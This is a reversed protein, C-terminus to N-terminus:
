LFDAFLRDKTKSFMVKSPFLKEGMHAFGVLATAWESLELPLRYCKANGAEAITILPIRDRSFGVSLVDHTIPNTIVLKPHRNADFYVKAGQRNLLYDKSTEDVIDIRMDSRMQKYYESLSECSYANFYEGQMSIDNKIDEVSEFHSMFNLFAIFVILDDSYTGAYAKYWAKNLEVVINHFKKYLALQQESIDFWSSNLITKTLGNEESKHTLTNHLSKLFKSILGALMDAMRIGSSAKSDLETVRIQCEQEAATATNGNAGEKDISLSYNSISKEALYKKFGIFSISYNWGIEMITSIDDLLILIQSFQSIELQKLEENEKDKEIQESFFKKLLIILEDTNKYMGNIVDTPQHLVLAKTISYRMADMNFLFSNKYGVFLQNVIYEIKSIVAYYILTKDNFLTMFDVLLSINDNNSSAFGNTLQSQRITNSKLEGKSQRFKYKEEFDHYQSFLDTEYESRWGIVVGIFNDYYNDAMITKKNIKRSHESEDYYFKYESM